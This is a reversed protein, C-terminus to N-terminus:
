QNLDIDVILDNAIEELAERLTSLDFDAPVDVTAQAKFLASGWNPASGCSSEFKVINLNFQNLVSTLEQVIGPKDNGMVEIMVSQTQAGEGDNGSVLHIQLDPHNSFAEILAEHNDGPLEIQVFGTFNGAMHAFSSALWNGGLEYVQKALSDILGPKDKGLLTFILPKM